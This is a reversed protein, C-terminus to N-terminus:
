ETVRCAHNPRIGAPLAFLVDIRTSETDSKGDGFTMVRVSIGKVTATYGECSALVPLPAFATAFADKQFVLNQRKGQSATGFVTIAANDAPASAVTGIASASTAVIAPYISVTGAGGAYDATVVFQRLTGNDLGTIPHVGNVGAITFITGKTLAGTGTDVILGSGSQSAGNVLYGTGAGNTHTPLSLQEYFDLGAFRGVSNESFEGQLEKQSHFLASNAEALADNADLSFHAVRGDQPALYRSMMSGANRWPTRTNPITGWTGVANPIQDKMSSLLVANVQSSLATMAPRLFRKEYDSIELAKEKATFTLPVHKQQDVTINVSAENAAPASGGGAFTAGSYVVPTPPVKVRVTEGPKYGQTEKGFEEERDTNLNAIVTNEEVLMAAAKRAILQHTLAQNVNSM